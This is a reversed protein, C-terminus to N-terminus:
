KFEFSGEEGAQSDLITFEVGDHRLSFNIDTLINETLSVGNGPPIVINLDELDVL